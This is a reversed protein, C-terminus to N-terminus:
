GHTDEVEIIEISDVLKWCEETDDFGNANNLVPSFILRYPQNLDVSYVNGKRGALRHVREPKSKPPWFDHLCNAAALADLRRRLCKAMPMGFKRVCLRDDELSRKLRRDRIVIEM